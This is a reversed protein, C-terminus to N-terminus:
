TWYVSDIVPILDKIALRHTYRATIGLLQSHEHGVIQQVLVPSSAKSIAASIWSHRISHVVRRNGYDDYEAIGLQDRIVKFMPTFLDAKVSLKTFIHNKKGKIFELFGWEILQDSIPVQRMAAESKGGESAIMFYRRGTEHDQRIQDVKLSLIEGRRAGTYSLCLIGWRMESDPALTLAHEVLKKMEYNQYNGYRREKVEVKIGDTPSMKLLDKAEVLYVKFFSRYIKWHKGASASSILDNDPVDYELLQEITMGRYPSRIRIPLAQVAKWVNRMDQKTISTVPVNGLVARLVEFIRENENAITSTWKGGKETTYMEIAENLCLQSQESAIHDPNGDALVDLAEPLMRSEMEASQNKLADTLQRYKLFDGGYFAEYAQYLMVRSMTIASAAKDVEDSVGTADLNKQELGFRLLKSFQDEGTYLQQLNEEAYRKAVEKSLQPDILEGSTLKQHWKGLEPITEAEISGLKLWHSLFKDVDQKTAKRVGLIELKLAEESMTGNQVLPIFPMLRSMTVEAIKLSDTGLSQRFFAGSPLRFNVYFINGRKTTFKPSNYLRKNTM